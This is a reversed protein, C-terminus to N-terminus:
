KSGKELSQFIGLVDTQFPPLHLNVRSTKKSIGTSASLGWSPVSQSTKRLPLLVSDKEDREWRIQVRWCKSHCCCCRHKKGPVENFRLEMMLFADRGKTWASRPKRWCEGCFAPNKQSGPRVAACTLTVSILLTSFTVSSEQSLQSMQAPLFCLLCTSLNPTKLSIHTHSYQTNTCKWVRQLPWFVKPLQTNSESYEVINEVSNKWTERMRTWHLVIYM